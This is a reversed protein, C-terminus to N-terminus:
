IPRAVARCPSGDGGQIKLPLCIFDVDGAPTQSLDLGEVIVVDNCLLIQHVPDGEPGYPGISLSDIGVLRIGQEVLYEAGKLTLAVYDTHFENDELWRSSTTRILLREVGTLNVAELDARDIHSAKWSLDMVRAQGILPELSMEELRRGTQILHYPADLHTGTHSPISLLSVNSEDGHELSFVPTVDPSPDGPWVVMGSHISRTLDLWM